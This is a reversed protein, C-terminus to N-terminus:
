RGFYALDASFAGSTMRELVLVMSVAAVYPGNGSFPVTCYPIPRTCTVKRLSANGCGVTVDAIIYFLYIFLYIFTAYIFM